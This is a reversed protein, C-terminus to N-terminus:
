QLAMKFLNLGKEDEDQSDDDGKKLVKSKKEEEQQQKDLEKQESKEKKELLRQKLRLKEKEYSRDYEKKLFQEFMPVKKTLFM